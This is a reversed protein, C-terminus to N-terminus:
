KNLGSSFLFSTFPTRKKIGLALLFTRTVTIASFMSVLVGLVFTFAFGQILSSGFWFLMVGTIISSINSDRISAWARTFGEQIADPINKGSRLEEKTREAILINADVAMGVSLIFGAIGAATLTVPILKFLVLTIVVYILLALVAVLGPLRYWLILFLSVLAFGILAARAGAQVAKEGLTAGVVQSGILSIPVPLAGANLRGVLVKADAPTFEGSIVARGGTIEERIVPASIPSGDLYIALQKGVNNKTIDAFMKGGEDNFVLAITPQRTTQDFELQSKQLFRGTLDTAVYYPDQM